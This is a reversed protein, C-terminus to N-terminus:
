GTCSCYWGGGYNNAICGRCGGFAACGAGTWSCSPDGDNIVIHKKEDAERLKIYEERSLGEIMKEGAIDVIKFGYRFFVKPHEKVKTVSNFANTMQDITVAPM